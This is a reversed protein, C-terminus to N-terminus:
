LQMLQKIEESIRKYEKVFDRLSVVSEDNALENHIIIEIARKLDIGYALVDDYHDGKNEGDQVIKLQRINFRGIACPEPLIQYDKIQIKM